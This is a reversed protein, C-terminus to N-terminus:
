YGAGYKVAEGDKIRPKGNEVDDLYANVADFSSYKLICESPDTRQVKRTNLFFPGGKKGPSYTVHRGFYYGLQWARHKMEAVAHVPPELLNTQESM